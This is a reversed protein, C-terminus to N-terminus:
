DLYYTITIGLDKVSQVHDLMQRHLKYNYKIQKDPLHRIVRISHCKTVNRKRVGFFGFLIVLNVFM